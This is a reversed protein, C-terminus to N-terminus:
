KKKGLRLDVMKQKHALDRELKNKEIRQRNVLQAQLQKELALQCEKDPCVMQTYEVYTVKGECIVKEKWAKAVIRPKGCRSCLNQTMNKQGPKGANRVSIAEITLDATM